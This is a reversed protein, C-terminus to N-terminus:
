CGSMLNIFDSFKFVIPISSIRSTIPFSEKTGISPLYLITIIGGKLDRVSSAEFASKFVISSGEFELIKIIKDEPFKQVCPFDSESFKIKVVIFLRHLVRKKFESVSNM